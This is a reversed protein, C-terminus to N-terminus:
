RIYQSSSAFTVTMLFSQVGTGFSTGTSINDGANALFPGAGTGTGPGGEQWDVRSLQGGNRYIIITGRADGCNSGGTQTAVAFATYYGTYPVAVGQNQGLQAYWLAPPGVLSKNYWRLYNDGNQGAVYVPAGSEIRDATSNVYNAKIYGEPTRQVLKSAVVELSYDRDDLIRYAVGGMSWGGIRWVNDTDIGFYAAFAGTRHFAIKAAGSGANQLELQGESGGASAIGGTAQSIMTHNTVTLGNGVTLGQGYSGSGAVALNGPTSLAMWQVSNGQNVWRFSGGTAAWNLQEGGFSMLLRDTGSVNVYLGGGGYLMVSGATTRLNGAASLGQAVTVTGDAAIRMREAGSTNFIMPLYTGTGRCGSTIYTATTGDNGIEGYPSNTLTSLGFVTLYSGPGTGAPLLSVATFGNTTSTQFALRTADTATSFDGLIRLGVGSFTLSGTLTGGTLQLYRADTTALPTGSQTWIGSSRFYLQNSTVDVRLMGDTPTNVDADVPTGAKTGTKLAGAVYVNRPRNSGSVGIDYTNDTIALFHGTGAQMAWRSTANDGLFLDLGAPGYVRNSFLSTGVYVSRPRNAASAGIDKTNDASFLLNAAMTLAGTLTGGVLPLYTAAASAVTLYGGSPGGPNSSYRADGEVPTLYQPYPDVDTKQPYRADAQTFTLLSAEAGSTDKVYLNHDAKAYLRVQGTNPTVPSAIEALQTYSGVNLNSDITLQAGTLRLRGPMEKYLSETDTAQGWKYNGGAVVDTGASVVGSSAVSQATITTATLPGTLTGGALPLYLADNQAKSQGSIPTENGASDVQYFKNDSKAYLRLSGTPPSSPKAIQKQELYSPALLAGPLSLPAALETGDWPLDELMISAIRQKTM